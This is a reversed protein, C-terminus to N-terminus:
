NVLHKQLDNLQSAISRDILKDDYRLIFGGILKEDVKSDIVVTSDIKEELMKQIRSLLGADLPIASFVTAKTIGKEINYLRMFSQLIDKLFPERRKRIIIHMFSHIEKDLNGAFLRDIIAKKRDSKIVPSKLMLEFDRNSNILDLINQADAKIRELASKEKALDILAKAYRSALRVEAM